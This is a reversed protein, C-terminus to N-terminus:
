ELIQIQYEAIYSADTIISTPDIKLLLKDAGHINNDYMYTMMEEYRVDYEEDKSIKFRYCLYPAKPFSTYPMKYRDPKDIFGHIKSSDTFIYYDEKKYINTMDVGKSSFLDYLEKISLKAEYSDESIHYVHRTNIKRIEFVHDKDTISKLTNKRMQIEKQIKILKEIEAKLLDESQNLASEYTKVNFDDLLQKLEKIPIKSDRLLMLINYKILQDSDYLRYGKENIEAPEILGEKEYYRINFTSTDLFRALEGITLLDRM